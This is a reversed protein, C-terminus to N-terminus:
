DDEEPDLYRIAAAKNGDQTIIGDFDGCRKKKRAKNVLIRVRKGLDRTDGEGELKKIVTGLNEDHVECTVEYDAVPESFVYIDVGRRTQVLAIGRLDDPIPLAATSPPGSESETDPAPRSEEDADGPEEGDARGTEGGLATVREIDGYAVRVTEGDTTRILYATDTEAVIEGVVVGGDTLEYVKRAEDASVPTAVALLAVLVMIVYLTTSVGAAVNGQIGSTTPSTKKM